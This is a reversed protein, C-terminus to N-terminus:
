LDDSWVYIAIAALCLVVAICSTMSHHIHRWDSSTENARRDEDPHVWKYPSIEREATLKIMHVPLPDRVVSM